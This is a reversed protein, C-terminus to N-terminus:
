RWFPHGPLGRQRRDPWLSPAAIHRRPEGTRHHRRERQRKQLPTACNAQLLAALYIAMDNIDYNGDEWAQDAKRLAAIYPARNDRIREPVIIKGPLLRGIRACLLYYCIARATRGNGEIFPHIWLM